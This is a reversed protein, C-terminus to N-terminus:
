LGEDVLEAGDWQDFRKLTIENKDQLRGTCDLRIELYNNDEQEDISFCHPIGIPIFDSLGKRLYNIDFKQTKKNFKYLEGKGSEVYIAEGVDTHYHIDSPRTFVINLATNKLERMVDISYPNKILFGNFDLSYDKNKFHLFNNYLNSIRVPDALYWQNYPTQIRKNVFERAIKPAESVIKGSAM